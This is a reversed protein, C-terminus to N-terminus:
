ALCRAGSVPFKCPNKLSENVKGLRECAHEVPLIAGCLMNVAPYLCIKNKRLSEVIKRLTDNRFEFDKLEHNSM